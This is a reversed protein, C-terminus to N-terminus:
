GHRHHRENRLIRNRPAGTSAVGVLDFV